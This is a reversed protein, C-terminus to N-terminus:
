FVIVGLETVSESRESQGWWLVFDFVNGSKNLIVRQISQLYPHFM